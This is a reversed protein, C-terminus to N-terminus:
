KLRSFSYPFGGSTLSSKWSSHEEKYHDETRRKVTESAKVLVSHLLRKLSGQLVAIGLFQMQSEQSHVLPGILVLQGILKEFFHRFFELVRALYEDEEYVNDLWYNLKKSHGGYNRNREHATSRSTKLM